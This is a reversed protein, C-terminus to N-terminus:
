PGFPKHELVDRVGDEDPLVGVSVRIFQISNPDTKRRTVKEGYPPMTELLPFSVYFIEKHSAGAALRELRVGAENALLFYTPPPYLKIGIEMTGPDKDDLSIYPGKSGNARTPQTMVFVSQSSANQVVVELELKDPLTKIVRLHVEVQEVADAEEHSYDTKSSELSLSCTNGGNIFVTALLSILLVRNTPM